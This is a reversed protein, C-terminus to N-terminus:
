HLLDPHPVANTCYNGLRKQMARRRLEMRWRVDSTNVPKTKAHMLHGLTVPESMNWTEGLMQLDRAFQTRTAKKRAQRELRAKRRRAKDRASYRDNNEKIQRARRRKKCEASCCVQNSHTPAFTAGCEPCTHTYKM